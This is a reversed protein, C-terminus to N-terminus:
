VPKGVYKSTRYLNIHRARKRITDSIDRLLGPTKTTFLYNFFVFDGIRNLTVHESEILGEHSIRYFRYGAKRFQELVAPEFEGLVEIVVDPRFQSITFRAGELIAKEHGEADIKLLLPGSIGHRQVYSDLTTTEVSVSDVMPNLHRQFDSELSASMDSSNLLLQGIGDRNSVALSNATLNSLGNARKHECLLAFMKPNPEFAVVQLRPNVKGAVMSFFGINAGVDIFVENLSGLMEIVTRTFPEYYDIGTWVLQFSLHVDGAGAFLLSGLGNQLPVPVLRNGFRAPTIGARGFCRRLRPRGCSLAVIMQAVPNKLSRLLQSMERRGSRGFGGNKQERIEARHLHASERLPFNISQMM